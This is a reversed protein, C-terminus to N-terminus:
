ILKLVYLQNIFTFLFVLKTLVSTVSICFTQGGSQLDVIAQKKKIKMKKNERPVVLITQQNKKLIGTGKNKHEKSSISTTM